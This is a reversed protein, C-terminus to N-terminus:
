AEVGYARWSSMSCCTAWVIGHCGLGGGGYKGLGTDPKDQIPQPHLVHYSDRARDTRLAGAYSSHLGFNCKVLQCTLRGCLHDATGRVQALSQTDTVKDERYSTVDM